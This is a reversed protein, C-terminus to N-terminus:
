PPWRYRWTRVCGTGVRRAEARAFEARRKRLWLGEWAALETLLSAEPERMTFAESSAAPRALPVRRFASTVASVWDPMLAEWPAETTCTASPPRARMPSTRWRM